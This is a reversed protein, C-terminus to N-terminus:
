KFGHVTLEVFAYIANQNSNQKLYICTAESTCGHVPFLVLIAL